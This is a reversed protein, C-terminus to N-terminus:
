KAVVTDPQAPAVTDPQTPAVTDLQFSATTDPQTPAVTDTDVAITSTVPAKFAFANSVSIIALAAVAAFVLKKM